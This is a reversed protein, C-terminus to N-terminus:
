THMAGACLIPTAELGGQASVHFELALVMKRGIALRIDGFTWAASGYLLLQWERVAVRV